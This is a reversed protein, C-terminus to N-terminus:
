VTGNQVIKFSAVSINPIRQGSLASRRKGGLAAWPRDGPPATKDTDTGEYSSANITM